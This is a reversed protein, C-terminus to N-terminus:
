HYPSWRSRCLRLCEKGVRREESRAGRGPAAGTGRGWSADPLCSHPQRGDGLGWPRAPLCAAVAPCTPLPKGHVQGTSARHVRGAWTHTAQQRDRTERTQCPVCGVRLVWLIERRAGSVCKGRPGTLHPERDRHGRTKWRVVAPEGVGSSLSLLHSPVKPSTPRCLGGEGLLLRHFPAMM